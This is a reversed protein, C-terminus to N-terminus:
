EEYLIKISLLINKIILKIFLLWCAKGGEDNRVLSLSRSGMGRGHRELGEGGSSLV